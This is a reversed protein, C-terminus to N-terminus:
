ISGDDIFSFVVGEIAFERQYRCDWIAQTPLESGRLTWEPAFRSAFEEIGVSSDVAAFYRYGDPVKEQDIYRNCGSKLITVDHLLREIAQVMEKQDAVKRARFIVSLNLRFRSVQEM